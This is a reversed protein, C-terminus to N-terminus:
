QTLFTEILKFLDDVESMTNFAHLCIRIRETGVPVTPSLIAKVHIGNEQIFSALQKIKKNDPLIFGQIPSNSAIFSQCHPSVETTKLKFYDILQFLANREVNPLLEYVKRIQRYFHPSPSTSYIFSRAHNILYHRLANSGVIAAGHLGLAKGFTHIRAWVSSELGLENVLGRGGEGYIGTAHAEDVILAAGHIRCLVAIEKMPAVDGGMSYMSEIAVFKRGSAAKLKADLDDLDNHKFKYRNALSLRMGDIISAHNDADSLYSDGKQALCSFLGVNAMYGTNFILAAETGHFVAIEWEVEEALESNGSILRSGTGGVSVEDDQRLFLDRHRSLGLYDNSSFDVLGKNIGLERLLGEGRRKELVEMLYRDFGTQTDM